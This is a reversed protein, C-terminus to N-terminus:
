PAYSMGKVINSLKRLSRGVRSGSRHGARERQSEIISVMTEAAVFEGSDIDVYRPYEVLALYVLEDLTRRRTRRQVAMRDETLGWGAYFPAGWTVVTRGRMLAEFGTLSTMVHVEDAADLARGVPGGEDVADACGACALPDITGRRNGSVVDPHPRYVIWADPCAKRAAQLLENNTSVAACGRKISEDDEVQGVVLVCRRDAPREFGPGRDDGTNYKSM